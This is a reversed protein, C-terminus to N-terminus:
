GYIWPSVKKTNQYVLDNNVLDLLMEFVKLKENELETKEDILSKKDQSAEIKKDLKKIEINVFLLYDIFDYTEEHDELYQENIMLSNIHDITIQDWFRVWLYIKCSYKLDFLRAHFEINSFDKEKNKEAYQNVEIRKEKSIELSVKGKEILNDIDNINNEIQKKIVTTEQADKLDKEYQKRRQELKNISTVYEEITQNYPNVMEIYKKRLKESVSNIKYKNITLLNKIWHFNDQLLHMIEHALENEKVTDPIYIKNEAWNYLGNVDEWFKSKREEESLVVIMSDINKITEKVDDITKDKQEKTAKELINNYEKEKIPSLDKRYGNISKIFFLKNNELIKFYFDWKYWFIKVEWYNENKDQREVTSFDIKSKEYIQKIFDTDFYELLNKKINEVKKEVDTYEKYKLNESM